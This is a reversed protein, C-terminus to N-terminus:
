AAGPHRWRGRRITGRGLPTDSALRDAAMEPGPTDGGWIM